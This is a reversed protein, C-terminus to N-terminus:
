VIKRDNYQRLRLLQVVTTLRTPLACAERARSREPFQELVVCLRYKNILMARIKNKETILNQMGAPRVGPYIKELQEAYCGNGLFECSPPCTDGVPRSVVICNEKGLKDNGKATKM